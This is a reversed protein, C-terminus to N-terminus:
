CPASDDVAASNGTSTRRDRRCCGPCVRLFVANGPQHESRWVQGDLTWWAAGEGAGENLIPRVVNTPRSSNAAIKRDDAQDLHTPRPTRRNRKASAGDRQGDRLALVNPESPPGVATRGRVPPGRGAAAEAAHAAAPRSHAQQPRTARADGRASGGASAAPRRRRRRAVDPLRSPNAERSSNGASSVEPAAERGKM